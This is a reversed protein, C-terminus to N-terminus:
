SMWIQGKKLMRKLRKNEKNKQKRQRKQSSKQKPDLMAM